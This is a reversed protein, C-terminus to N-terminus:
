EEIIILFFFFIFLYIFIIHGLDQGRAGGQAHVRSDLRMLCLAFRISYWHHLHTGITCTHIELGLNQGGAGGRPM